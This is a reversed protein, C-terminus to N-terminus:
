HDHSSLCRNDSRVGQSPDLLFGELTHHQTKPPEIRCFRPFLLFNASQVSVLHEASNKNARQMM